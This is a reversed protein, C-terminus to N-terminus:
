SEKPWISSLSALSDMSEGVKLKAFAIAAKCWLLSNRVAECDDQPPTPGSDIRELKLADVFWGNNLLGWRGRAEIVVTAEPSRATFELTHRTYFGFKFDDGNMWRPNPEDGQVVYLRLEGALPDGAWRKEGGVYSSVLDPFVPATFRYTAGVTLGRVTQFLRWWIAGWGKFVKLAYDGSLFFLDQEHPPAQGVNWVVTEPPDFAQVQRDLRLSKDTQYWFDWENPIVIEVVNHWHYHGAEFSANRLLNEDPAPEPVPPPGPPEPIPQPQNFERFYRVLAGAVRTSAIDHESWAPNNTGLTFIAAGHVYEDKQIERDYWILQEAYYLEADRGGNRWYDIPDRAGDQSNWFEVLTKWRGAKVTPNVVDLGLETILLRINGLGRNQFFNRYVKRYRLTTWGEDGATEGPKMQFPGWMWWVWPSSYEHLGLYGNYQLAAEVAPTYRNWVDLNGPNGTAFNGVVGRLGFDAMLRLCEADFAAIWAMEGPTSCDPENHTQWIKIALNANWIPLRTMVFDAAAKKPDIGARRQEEATLPATNARGVVLAGKSVALEALGFDDVLLVFRAGAEIMGRGSTTPALIHPGLKSNM